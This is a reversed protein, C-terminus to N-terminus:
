WTTYIGRIDYHVFTSYAKLGGKKIKGENMLKKIINRLELPTLGKVRIDAAKALLHMSKVKGGIKKNHPKCRYGSNVSIPLNIEDRIVQLNDALEIVNLLLLEPFACGCKCKFESLNFNETLEM